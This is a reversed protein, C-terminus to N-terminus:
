CSLSSSPLIFAVVEPVSAFLFLGWMINLVGGFAAPQGNYTRIAALALGCAGIPYVAANLWGRVEQVIRCTKAVTDVGDMMGPKAAAVEPLLILVASGLVALLLVRAM